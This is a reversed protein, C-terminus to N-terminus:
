SIRKAIHNIGLSKLEELTGSEKWELIGSAIIEINKNRNKINSLLEQVQNIKSKKKDFYDQPSSISALKDVDLYRLEKFPAKLIELFKFKDFNDNLVTPFIKIAPLNEIPIFSLDELSSVGPIYDFNKFRLDESILNFIQPNFIPSFIKVPSSHENLFSKRISVQEQLKVLDESKIVSGFALSKIELFYDLFDWFFDTSLSVEILNDKYHTNLNDFVSLYKKLADKKSLHNKFDFNIVNIFM